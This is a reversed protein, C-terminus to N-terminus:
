CSEANIPMRWISPRIKTLTTRAARAPAMLVSQIAEKPKSKSSKPGQDALFRACAPVAIFTSLEIVKVGNLAKITEM